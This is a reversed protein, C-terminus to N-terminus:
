LKGVVQEICAQLSQPTFPKKLFNNVGYERAKNILEKEASGTVLIFGIKRTVKNERLAKLLQLGDMEPMNYDSIVLHAPNGVLSTLAAKGDRRFDINKVGLRELPQILLGRSTSMDDVVMIKINDRLAM